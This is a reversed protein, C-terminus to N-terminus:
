GVDSPVKFPETSFMRNIRRAEGERFYRILGIAKKVVHRKLNVPMQIHVTRRLVRWLWIYGFM